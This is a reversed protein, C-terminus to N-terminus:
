LVGAQKVAQMTYGVYFSMFGFPVDRVILIAFIKELIFVILHRQQTWFIHIFIAVMRYM